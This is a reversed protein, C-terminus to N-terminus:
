GGGGQGGTSINGVIAQGGDEVNVHQVTIRQQGKNRYKELAEVHGAFTRMLKTARTVGANVGEYTQGELMARKSCEMALTHLAVMQAALMGELEDQPAIGSMMAMMASAEDLQGADTATAAVQKLLHLAADPVAVGTTELLRAEVSDGEAAGVTLTGKQKGPRLKLQSRKRAAVKDLLRRDTAPQATCAAHDREGTTSEGAQTVANQRKTKTRPM